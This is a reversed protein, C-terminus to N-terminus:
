GPAGFLRRMEHRPRGLDKRWIVEQAKAVFGRLNEDATARLVLAWRAVSDADAVTFKTPM